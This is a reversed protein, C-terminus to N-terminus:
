GRLMRSSGRLWRWIEMVVGILLLAISGSVLVWKTLTFIGALQDMVPTTAPYRVMVMSTSLNELFDFAAALVPTVNASRWRSGLSFVRRYTWSIGTCLFLTYVLPWILDFTFRARVYARRGAQGYAGAMQYLDDATYYFLTDPSGANRTDAKAAQGPLVFTTFLLFIILAFLTVWSNSIRYIWESPKRWM